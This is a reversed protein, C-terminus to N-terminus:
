NLVFMFKLESCIKGTLNHHHQFSRAEGVDLDPTVILLPLRARVVVEEDERCPTPCQIGLSSGVDSPPRQLETEGKWWSTGHLEKLQRGPSPMYPPSTSGRTPGQAPQLWPAARQWPEKPSGV